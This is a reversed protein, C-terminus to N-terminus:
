DLLRTKTDIVGTGATMHVGTGDKLTFDAVIQDLRVRDSGKTEPMAHAASIVFPQGNDDAGSLRPNQMSLDDALSSIRQFSMQMRAPPPQVVYVLVLIALGLATVPLAGKMFRVFISYRRAGHLTARAAVRIQRARYSLQATAFEQAKRIDGQM